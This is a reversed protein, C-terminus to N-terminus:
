GDGPAFSLALPQAPMESIARVSLRRTASFRRGCGSRVMRKMQGHSTSHVIAKSLARGSNARRVSAVMWRSMIPPLVSFVLDIRRTSPEGGLRGLKTPSTAKAM